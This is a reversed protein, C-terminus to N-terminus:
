TEEINLTCLFEPKCSAWLALQLCSTSARFYNESAQFFERLYLSNFKNGCVFFFEGCVKVQGKPLSPYLGDAM